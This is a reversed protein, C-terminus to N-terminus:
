SRYQLSLLFHDVQITLNTTSRLMYPYDQKLKILLESLIAFPIWQVIGWCYGILALMFLCSYFGMKIPAVCLTMFLFIHSCAWAKPTSSSISSLIKYPVYIVRKWGKKWSQNPPSMPVAMPVFLGSLLSALSFIVLPLTAHRANSMKEEMGDEGIVAINPNYTNQEVWTSSFFLIPYWPLSGFFQINCLTRIPSPLDKVTYIIEKLPDYWKAKPMKPTPDEKAVVVTILITVFSVISTVLSVLHLQNFKKTGVIEPLDVSCIAYSALSGLAGSIAAFANALSQQSFPVKDVLLSRSCASNVDQAIGSGVIAIVAMFKAIVEASGSLKEPNSGPVLFAAVQPACSFMFSTITTLVSVGLLFPTRSGIRTGCRDSYSGIVPQCVLGCMPVLLLM